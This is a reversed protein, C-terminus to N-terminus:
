WRSDSATRSISRWVEIERRANDGRVARTQLYKGWAEEGIRKRMVEEAEDRVKQIEVDGLIATLKNLRDVAYEWLDFDTAITGNPFCVVSSEVYKETWHMALVRLEDKTLPSTTVPEESYKALPYNMNDEKRKRIVTGIRDTTKAARWHCTAPNALASRVTAPGGSNKGSPPATQKVGV